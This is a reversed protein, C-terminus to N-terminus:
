FISIDSFVCLVIWDVMLAIVIFLVDMERRYNESGNWQNICNLNELM